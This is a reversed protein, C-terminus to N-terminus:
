GKRTLKRIKEVDEATYYRYNSFSERRPKPIKGNLEWNYLTKRCIGLMKTVKGASYYKKGKM